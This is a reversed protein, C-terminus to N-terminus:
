YRLYDTWIRTMLTGNGVDPNSIKFKIEKQEIKSESQIRPLPQVM